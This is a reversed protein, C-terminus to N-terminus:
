KAELDEVDLAEIAEREREADEESIEDAEIAEELDQATRKIWYLPSM